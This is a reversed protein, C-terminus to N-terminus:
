LHSSSPGAKVFEEVDALLSEPRELAAFHGGSDHFRYFSLKDAGGLWAEVWAKPPVSIEHKFSSFGFRKGEPLKPFPPRPKGPVFIERYSYVNRPPTNTLYYLSVMDLITQLSPRSAPDSWRLLKEGVWILTALPNSSLVLGITSPVTAHTQAYASGTAM